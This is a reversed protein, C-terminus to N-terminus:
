GGFRSTFRVVGRLCEGPELVVLGSDPESNRNVADNMHSVPEVCLIDGGPPSFVVLHGFPGDSTMDLGVGTDAWDIRAKGNWGTFCNDLVVDDMVIGNSFNWDDPVPVRRVPLITEDGLWVSAVRATLRTGPPKPFYPHLGLGAPMAESGDNRLEMTVTLGDTCLDFTQDATYPFPWGDGTGHRYRLVARAGTADLVDWPAQWGHGHITHPHIGFNRPLAVARGRFTFRGNAIRNSFPVLPFCSLALPDCPVPATAAVSRMLPITQGAHEVTLRAISGGCRASIACAMPGHHLAILDQNATM